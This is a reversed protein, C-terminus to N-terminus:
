LGGGARYVRVRAGSTGQLSMRKRPGSVVEMGGETCPVEGNQVLQGPYGNAARPLATSQQHAHPKHHELLTGTRGLKSDRRRHKAWWGGGELGLALVQAKLDDVRQGLLAGGGRVGGEGGGVKPAPFGVV